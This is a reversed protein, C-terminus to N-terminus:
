AVKYLLLYIFSIFFRSFPFFIKLGCIQYTTLMLFIYLIMCCLLFAIIWNFVTCFVQSSIKGFFICWYDDPVHFSVWCWLIICILVGILNNSNGDDFIWSIRVFVPSSISFVYGKASRIPNYVPVFVIFCYPPILRWFLWVRSLLQVSSFQTELIYLCSICSLIPFVFLWILFHASSRFLCKELSCIHICLLCM